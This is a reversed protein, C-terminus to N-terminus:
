LGFIEELERAVGDEENSHTSVRNAARKATNEGNKMAVGLGVMQLMEADNHGDGFGIVLEMPIDIASILHQVGVGKNVSPHVFEIFFREPIVHAQQASFRARFTQFLQQAGSEEVLIIIKSPSSQALPAYCDIYEYRCATLKQYRDYLPQHTPSTKVAYLIDNIYMNTPWNEKIVWDIIQSVVSPELPREFLLKRGNAKTDYAGAGNYSVMYCDVGLVDQYPEVCPTM